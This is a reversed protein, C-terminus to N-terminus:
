TSATKWCCTSCSFIAVRKGELLPFYDSTQEDGMVVRQQAGASLAACLLFISLLLLHKM